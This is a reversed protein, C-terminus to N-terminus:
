ARVGRSTSSRKRVFVLQLAIGDAGLRKGFEEFLLALVAVISLRNGLYGNGSVCLNGFGCDTFGVPSGNPNLDGTWNYYAEDFQENGAMRVNTNSAIPLYYLGYSAYIKSRGEGSPDWIFGLRPAWQGDVKIFTEGLGNKNEFEEYRLGINLTM